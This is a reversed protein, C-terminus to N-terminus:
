GTSSQRTTPRAASRANSTLRQVTRCDLRGTAPLGQAEQYSTLAARTTLGDNGDVAGLYYGTSKLLEQVKRVSSGPDFAYSMGFALLGYLLMCVVRVGDGEWSLIWGAAHLTPPSLWEGPSAFM